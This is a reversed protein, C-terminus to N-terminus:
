DHQHETTSRAALVSDIADIEPGLLQDLQDDFEEDLEDFDSEDQQMDALMADLEKKRAEVQARNVESLAIEEIAADRKFEEQREAREKEKFEIKALM